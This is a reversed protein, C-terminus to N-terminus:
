PGVAPSFLQAADDDPAAPPAPDPNLRLLEGATYLRDHLASRGVIDLPGIRTMGAEATVALIDDETISADDLLDPSHSTVIVQTRESADRLGDRLVGAAAPHLATEPEEIGVLSGLYRRGNSFQFLAVLNGLARLTGDSMSAALFRWPHTNAGVRQRFEITEKPGFSKVDAAEVGPVVKSLYQEIRSKTKPSHAELQRLVSTLNSGDRALVDAAAPSQLDRIRDPNLNYFGMHSLSEYAPRFEPLGSVNVLYLRDPAAAPPNAVSCHTVRGSDLVYFDDAGMFRTLRLEERQVEYGGGSRAGVRFAFLGTRGDRLRFDLSVGFHTPHGGSRRRVEQIGGRDRLAHDLTTNLSDAVLRLADVVNSKGSGNPGVLFRLPGLRFDCAAISRYNQLRIRTLFTSESM